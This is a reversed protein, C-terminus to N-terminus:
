KIPYVYNLWGMMRLLVRRIISVHTFQESYVVMHGQVGLPLNYDDLNEELSVSAIARGKKAIMAASALQGRGQIEGESMAPLLQVVEGKFVHGPVADLIVEVELGPKILKMSNQWFSGVLLREKEPIFVMVPALPLPVAMMGERIALQTVMGNSPARVITKDLDYQALRLQARVEAVRPDEGGYSADVELRLERERAQAAEVDAEAGVFLQKRNDIDQQSYAGEADAYRQYTQKARDRSAVASSVKARASKWAEEEALASKSLDALQARKRVVALEYPVPDIRFLVDGQQVRQNAKVEVAVVRGKVQPVVPVSAFFEKAYKAYPHNYNMLMLLTGILFVGGLFATPLTWKNLPIRFVKFLITCLGVYTVILLLDM